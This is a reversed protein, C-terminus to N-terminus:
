AAQALYAQKRRQRRLGFGAAIFGSLLMAWSAPEPVPTIQATAVFNDPYGSPNTVSSLMGYYGLGSNYFNFNGLSQTSFSMGAFTVWAGTGYLDNDAGAYSSLGTIVNTGNVLGSISTAHGSANTVITGDAFVSGVSWTFHYTGAAAKTGTTAPVGLAHGPAAFALGCAVAAARLSIRKDM